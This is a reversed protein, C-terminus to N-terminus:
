GKWGKGSEEGKAKLREWCWPRKWHTLDESWIALTNSGWCWDKWNINLTSKRKSQSTQSTWSVRLFRRWCWLQFCWNKPVWGEKHDLMHFCGLTCWCVSSYLHPTICVCLHSLPMGSHTHTHTHTHTRARARMRACASHYEVTHTHTHTYACALIISSHTTMEKLYIYHSFLIGSLGLSSHFNSVQLLM